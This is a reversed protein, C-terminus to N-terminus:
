AALRNRNYILLLGRMTLEPDSHDIITTAHRFLSGLGGTTVVTVKPDGTPSLEAKIRNVLGEIMSVYGWFIGSQMAGVTTRGVVTPPRVIQVKPLQAAVRHLADLALNPGPAIVGGAFSGDANVVDFNTATGFDLVILPCPYASRASVANVLRDAGAERPTELRVELGLDVEPDGVILPLCDFHLRFLRSLHFTAPPVVCALIGGTIDTPKLDRLAMLSILWVAYDDATKSADTAMRWQGVKTDGDYVAFVTNTNGADIALLM